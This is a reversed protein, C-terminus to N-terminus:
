AQSKLLATLEVEVVAGLPLEAVGVAARAHAGAEGFVAKFLESAGNVVAPQATFGPASAVFGTVKVVREVRNLDGVASKLAALCNIGCLRAAAYGEEVTVGAGLKGSFKIKGGEVPLQGSIYVWRGAVVAPVYAAVPKPTEPLAIGLEGLRSQVDVGTVGRERMSFVVRDGPVLGLEEGSRRHDARVVINLHNPTHTLDFGVVEFGHGALELRDSGIVVGAGTVEFFALYGIRDVRDGPGVESQDTLILEHIEGRCLARSGPRILELGRQELRGRLVAVVTGRVPRKSSYPTQSFAGEAYPDRV